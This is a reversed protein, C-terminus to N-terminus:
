AVAKRLEELIREVSPIAMNELVPAFPMPVDFGAIRKIPADLFHFGKDAIIASIEAGPGATMPSEHVIAVRSTKEVSSLITEADLPLLTRMDIVEINIGEASLREAAELCYKRMKGFTVVTLDKGARVVNAKGIPVTGGNVEGKEDYMGKHEFILVPNPDEFASLLLGSADNPTSPMVIKLGPVHMFMAENSQSHQAAASFGGGYTCRVVIPLQADGGYMYKMKAMQNVIQDMAVYLFDCFMIEAIPKLGTLSAGIAVGIIASESIPTNRVRKPGYKNLLGKTVSFAGGLLAIDEGFLIARKDQALISDLTANITERITMTKTKFIVKIKPKEVQVPTYVDDFVDQPSPQSCARAFAVADHMEDEVDERIKKLKSSDVGFEGMLRHEFLYICDKKKWQEIEEQTRYPQPDGEWHGRYRYTKCEVLIPGKGARATSVAGSVKSFVDLVDVGDAIVGPMGYASARVSVDRIAQHEHQPTTQAYLNNECLFIVPLKWVSALNLAEHFTGENSAGDGFFCVTVSETGLYQASLAAGNSIPLGGGVIGNAGLIGLSLCAIHMSGGKGKCYGASKAFLEAMMYKPDGGKAICHGHGRHTSTIYDKKGLAACTGVAVAEEGIYLHMFGPIEKAAYLDIVYEDFRRALIMLRYMELLKEEAPFQPTGSIRTTM